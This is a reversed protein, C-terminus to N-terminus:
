VSILIDLLAPKGAKVEEIGKRVTSVIEGPEDVRTGWGGFAEVLKAYDPRPNISTAFTPGYEKGFGDPYMGNGEPGTAGVQGFLEGAM